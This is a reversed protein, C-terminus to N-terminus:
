SNLLNEAETLCNQIRETVLDIFKQKNEKKSLEEIEEPLIPDGFVVRIKKPRVFKGGKPLANMTGAVGVPYVPLQSRKAIAIFGPKIRQLKGDTSRTGEPFVGVLHGEKMKDIAKKMSESSAASRDIPIVYVNKLFWGLFPVRFLSNRALYCVPRTLPVGIMLPDLFSQHNALFLGGRTPDIKEKGISRYRFYLAFLPQAFIQLFWWIFKRGPVSNM